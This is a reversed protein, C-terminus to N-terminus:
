SVKEFHYINKFDYVLGVAGDDSVLRICSEFGSEPYFANVISARCSEILFPDGRVLTVKKNETFRKTDYNSLEDLISKELRSTDLQEISSSGDAGTLKQVPFGDHSIFEVENWYFFLSKKNVRTLHIGAVVIKCNGVYVEDDDNIIVINDGDRFQAKFFEWGKIVKPM